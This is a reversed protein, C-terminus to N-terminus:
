RRGAKLGVSTTGIRADGDNNVHLITAEGCRLTLPSWRTVAATGVRHQAMVSATAGHEKDFPFLFVWTPMVQFGGGPLTFATRSYDMAQALAPGLKVGAPKIEIGIIGHSWGLDVLKQTPVLLRDIRMGKAQQGPRPQILTGPVEAHGTFLGTTNIVHDIVLCNSAETGVPPPTRPATATM